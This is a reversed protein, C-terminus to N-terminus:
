TIEFCSYHLGVLRSSQYLSGSLCWPSIPATASTGVDSQTLCLTHHASHAGGTCGYGNGAHSRKSLLQWVRVQRHYHCHIRGTAGPTRAKQASCTRRQQRDRPSLVHEAGTGLKWRSEAVAALRDELRRLSTIHLCRADYRGSFHRGAACPLPTDLKLIRLETIPPNHRCPRSATRDDSM